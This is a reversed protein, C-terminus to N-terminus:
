PRVPQLSFTRQVDIGKEAIQLRDGVARLRDQYEGVIMRADEGAVSVAEFYAAVLLGDPVPEVVVNAVLHKSWEVPGAFVSRYFELFAARGERLGDVRRLVVDETVLLSLAEEDRRDVARAYAHLVTRAAEDSEFTRM